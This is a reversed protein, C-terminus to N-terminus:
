LFLHSLFTIDSGLNISSRELHTFRSFDIHGCFDLVHEEKWRNVENRPLSKVVDRPSLLRVQPLWKRVFSGSTLWGRVTKEKVDFLACVIDINRNGLNPHLYFYIINSKDAWSLTPKTQRGTFKQNPASAPRQHKTQQGQKRHFMVDMRELKTIIRDMTKKVVTDVEYKEEIQHVLNDVVARVEVRDFVHKLGRLPPPAVYEEAVIAARALEIRTLSAQM